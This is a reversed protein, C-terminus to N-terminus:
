LIAPVAEDRFLQVLNNREGIVSIWVKREVTTESGSLKNLRESVEVDVQCKLRRHGCRLRKWSLVSLVILDVFAIQWNKRGKSPALGMTRVPWTRQRGETQPFGKAM